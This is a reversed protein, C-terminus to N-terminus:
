NHTSDNVAFKQKLVLTAPPNSVATVVLDPESVAPESFKAIFADAHNGGGFTIDFAVATTPFGASSTQGTVYVSGDSDVAIAHGEETKDAGLYTSYVLATGSPVMTTVFVDFSGGGFTTDFADPTTPFGSSSTKGIISASGATDIAIANADDHNAGGLYTSYVLTAGNPALKTAFADSGGDSTRDFAGPTTPFNGSDTIGAVFANGAADVAIGRGRDTGFGGLYTSYVPASGNAQLKTIFADTRNLTTDFAGPTAPFDSSATDGTVYAGGAGDIAITYGEDM